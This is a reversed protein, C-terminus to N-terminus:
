PTNEVQDKNAHDVMEHPQCTNKEINMMSVLETLKEFVGKEDCLYVVSPKSDKLIRLADEEGLNGPFVVLKHRFGKPVVNKDVLIKISAKDTVLWLEGNMERHLIKLLWNVTDKDGRISVVLLIRAM